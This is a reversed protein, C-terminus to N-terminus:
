PCVKGNPRQSMNSDEQNGINLKIRSGGLYITPHISIFINYSTM